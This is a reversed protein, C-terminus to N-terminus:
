SELRKLRESLSRIEAQLEAERLATNTEFGDMIITELNEIRRNLAVVEESDDSNSSKLVKSKLGKKSLFGIKKKEGEPLHGAMRLREKELNLKKAKIITGALIATVAIIMVFPGM